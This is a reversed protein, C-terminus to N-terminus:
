SGLKTTKAAQHSAKGACASMHTYTSAWPTLCKAECLEISAVLEHKATIGAGSVAATVAPAVLRDAVRRPLKPVAGRMVLRSSDGPQGVSLGIHAGCGVGVLDVDRQQLRDNRGLRTKVGRGDRGFPAMPRICTMGAVHRGAVAYGTVLASGHGGLQGIRAGVDM